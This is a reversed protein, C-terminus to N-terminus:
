SSREPTAAGIRRAATAIEGISSAVSVNMAPAHNSTEPTVGSDPAAVSRSSNCTGNGSTSADCKM